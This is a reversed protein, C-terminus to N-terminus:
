ALFWRVFDYFTAWRPQLRGAELSDFEDVGVDFIGGRAVSYLYFGEGEGSTLAVYGLVLDYADRAFETADRIQESPTLLDMLEETSETSAVTSVRYARFFEAFETGEDIGLRALAAAVPTADGRAVQGPQKAMLQEIDLPIM